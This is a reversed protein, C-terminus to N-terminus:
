KIASAQRCIALFDKAKVSASGILFGDIEPYKLYETANTANVSGGYLFKISTALEHDYKEAITRRMREIVALAYEPKAPNQSGIAWVPEYAIILKTRKQPSAAELASFIQGSVKQWEGEDLTGDESLIKGKEGVCVIPTIGWRFSAQIKKAILENSEQNYLRRESHGLIAYKILDKLFYASVEGTYAGQDEPWVNQAALHLNPLVHKMQERVSVIWSTPPAIVVDVNKIDEVGRKLEGVLVLSDILTPYMKWNGVILKTM